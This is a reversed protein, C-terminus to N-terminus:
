FEYRVALEMERGGGRVGSTSNLNGFVATQDLRLNSNFFPTSFNVNNFANFAAARFEVRHRETGPIRFRKHLSLDTTFAGPGRIANRSGVEGPRTYLVQKLAAVPDSFLNPLGFAGNRTIHTELSGVITAPGQNLPNTPYVLGNTISLPFGSRWRWVGALTWGGIVQHLLGHSNRGFPLDFLGHANFNHRLDFNSDAYGAKTRFANQIQDSGAAGFITDNNEPTSGNDRGKSLVYNAAFTAPGARRRVTLQMSHYSSSGANTWTSLSNYQPQFLVYGTRKPDVTTNWPSNGGTLGTDITRLPQIWNGNARAALVYFAQTATLGTNKTFAPLNPLLNEFFAIPQIKSVAATDNPNIAPHLPDTGILDVIQNYAGWLNQGSSPDKFYGYYQAMNLYGLQQRGLTGAYGLDVVVRRPLEREVSFSAHMSYPVTLRNDVMFGSAAAGQAFTFPFSGSAPANIFASLPPLGGTAVLTSPASLRPATAFDYIGNATSVSTATGPSGYKDTAVALAGGLRDYYVGFGARIASKGAAGFIARGVGGRFEPAYAIALRPAVNNWDTSYWSERGNAKGALDYSILPSSWSPIGAYMDSQRKNWWDRVDITPRVEAGNTEWVPTYVSYRVGATITLRPLVRWTDQLYGEVGNEAYSRARPVGFPVLQKTKPDTLYTATALDVTGTLLMFAQMFGFADAPMVNPDGTALLRQDPQQPTSRLATPWSNFTPYSQAQNYNDDRTVRVAGGFQVTHKGRLMTADDDIDHVPVQRGNARGVGSFTDGGIFAAGITTNALFSGQFGSSQLGQRTFGYRLTNLFSPRIQATYNVAIGKSNNLVSSRPPLGPYQAAMTDARLGGLIGRVFLTHHGDKTLNFDMRSTYIQNRTQVPANFRFAGFNLGGDPGSAPDNAKPYLSLYQLGNPNEGLGAPDLNKVDAPSLTAINGNTTRYTLIGQQLTASPGNRVQPSESDDRRAEYDFFLFVRNRIVPGGISGGYTNRELNPRALGSRNSFFSNAALSTDRNYERLNGHIENSGSKTILQVQAGSAVGDTANGNATTVRFEKISDLTVPLVSTFPAQTHFDNSNAGDVQVNSQNGRVGDVAGERYDLNSVAGQFLADPDSQGTFVVGPQLTLMLIPNRALFPLTKVEQEEIANGRSADITNVDSLAAAVTIIETRSGIKMQMKVSRQDGVQLVVNGAELVAFGEHEARIAYAGPALSPLLFFGIENTSARRILGNAVNTATVQVNPVLAGTQDSITGSLAATGAQAHLAPLVHGLSAISLFIGTSILRSRLATTM